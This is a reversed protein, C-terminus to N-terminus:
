RRRPQNCGEETERTVDTVRKGDARLSRKVGATECFKAALEAESNEVEVRLNFDKLGVKLANGPQTSFPNFFPEVGSIFVAAGPPLPTLLKVASEFLARNTDGKAKHFYIVHERSHTWMPPLLVGVAVVAVLANSLVRRTILVGITLSVFFHPAYLYLQDPRAPLLLVPGLLIVFAVIGWLAARQAREESLIMAVGMAVILGVVIMSEIASDGYFLSSMYYALGTAIGSLSLQPHYPDGVSWRLTALLQGYRVAYIVFVVLYPWLQRITARVSQREVLVNMVFLVAIMGLAFEKTRIALLYCAAGALDYRLDDGHSRSTQRLIVTGLCLTSALLDFSATVWGVANNASFWTAALLAAALAGARGTYRAAVKYLLSCNVAHLSLWAFQFARHNLGVLEYTAKILAAGVPRDNYVTSPLVSFFESAWWPFFEARWLWQWDDIYFFNRADLLWRNYLFTTAFIVAIAGYTSVANGQHRAIFNAWPQRPGLARLKM